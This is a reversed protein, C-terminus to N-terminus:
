NFEKICRVVKYFRTTENAEHLIPAHEIYNASILNLRNQANKTDPLQQVFKIWVKGDSAVAYIKDSQLDKPSELPECVVIEKDRILPEMSNGKVPFAVYNSGELGPLRYHEQQERVSPDTDLQDSAFAERSFLTVNTRVNTDGLTPFDSQDPSLLSGRGHLVYDENVHYKRCFRKAQEHNICRKDGEKLFASIIHGYGRNNLVVAAVDGIGRGNRDNPIIMRREILNEFAEVFRKNLALREPSIMSPSNHNHHM